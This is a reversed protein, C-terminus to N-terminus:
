LCTKSWLEISKRTNTENLPFLPPCFSIWQNQICTASSLALKYASFSHSIIFFYVLPFPLVIHQYRHQSCSAPLSGKSQAAKAAQLLRELVFTTKGSGARGLVPILM